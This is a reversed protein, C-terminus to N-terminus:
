VMTSRPTTSGHAAPQRRHIRENRRAVSLVTTFPHPSYPLLIATTEGFTSEGSPTRSSQISEGSSMYVSQLM